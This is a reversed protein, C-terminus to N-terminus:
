GFDQWVRLESETVKYRAAKAKTALVRQVGLAAHGVQAATKGAPMELSTNVVFVMKFEPIDEEDFDESDSDTEDSDERHHGAAYAAQKHCLHEDEDDEEEEHCHHVHHNLHHQHHYLHHHMLGEEDSDEDEDEEDELDEELEEARSRRM